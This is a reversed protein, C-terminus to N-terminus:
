LQLCLKLQPHAIRVCETDSSTVFVDTIFYYGRGRMVYILSLRQTRVGWDELDLITVCLVLLLMFSKAKAKDTWKIVWKLFDHLQCSVFRPHQRLDFYKVAGYGIATATSRVADEQLSCKGDSMRQRLICEM